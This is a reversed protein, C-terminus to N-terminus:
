SLMKRAARVALAAATLTPSTATPWAILGTGGLYLNSLGRVRSFGDVVSQGNDESGMATTGMIHMSSGPSLVQPPTAPLFRGIIGAVDRMDSLMQKTLALEDSTRSYDFVPQPMGHIDLQRPDFRLRNEHRPSALAYWYLNALFRPHMAHPMASLDMKDQLLYANFPRQDDLPIMLYARELTSRVDIDRRQVGIRDIVDQNFEIRGYCLPHDTLFRGLPSRSGRMIESAWLLQPTLLGGCAVVFQDAEVTVEDGRALNLARASRVRGGKVELKKVLHDALLRYKAPATDAQCPGLIDAPATWNLAASFGSRRAAVPVPSVNAVEAQTLTRQLIQQTASDAFADSTVYLLQEAVEYCRDFPEPEDLFSPRELTAHFRPSLGTWVTGMGGVAYCVAAAILSSGIPEAPQCDSKKPKKLAFRSVPYLRASVAKFAEHVDSRALHTNLVHVGPPDSLRPGVEMVVVDRGADALLRAFIAGILGSGVVLVECRIM